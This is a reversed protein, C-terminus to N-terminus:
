SGVVRVIVHLWAPLLTAWYGVMWTLGVIGGWAEADTRRTRDHISRSLGESVGQTGAGPRRRSETLLSKLHVAQWPLYFLGFVLNLQVLIERGGFDDVTAYLFASAATNLAFILAWGLEEYVYLVRRGTLIAGWVFCQSVVVQAVMVWSAVDVWGARDVNLLRLVHSFLYIYAVESVTALVRTVFSSSLVTDHLVTNDNYRNPFLCRYASVVFFIQAPVVIHPDIRDPPLRLTHVLFWLNLVAGLKLAWLFTTFDRPM